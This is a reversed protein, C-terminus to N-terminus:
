SAGGDTLEKTMREIEDVANKLIMAIDLLALQEARTEASLVEFWFEMQFGNIPDIVESAILSRVSKIRDPSLIPPAM